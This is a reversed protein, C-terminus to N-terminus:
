AKAVEVQHVVSERELSIKDNRGGGADKKQLKEMPPIYLKLSLSNMVVSVSSFAMAFGAIEPRLTAQSINFFVKGPGGLWDRVAVVWAAPGAASQTFFLHLGGAIPIAVVNYIFAWFLNQWVKRITRKSLELATVVDRLDDKVLVVEGTEIAVDTGSGIAIGVDAQALAPSDNIGDGVMGVKKGEDQLRKIVSAKDQPLVQALARDIGAERAIAEATKPNDGTIMIIEKGMKKLASIAERAFPKLEDRMAIMAAPEAEVSVFVVTKAQSQLRDLDSSFASLDIGSK